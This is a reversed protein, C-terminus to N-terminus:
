WINRRKLEDLERRLVALDDNLDIKHALAKIITFLDRLESVNILVEKQDFYKDRVKDCQQIHEDSWEVLEKMTKEVKITDM